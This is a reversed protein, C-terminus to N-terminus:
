RPPPRRSSAGPPEGAADKKRRPRFIVVMIVLILLLLLMLWVWPVGGGGGAGAKDKVNVISQGPLTFYGDYLITGNVVYTGAAPPTWYVTLNAHAGSPVTLADSELPALLRGDQRVEAKFKAAVVRVTGDNHFWADLRIPEGTFGFPEHNIGRFTGSPVISGPVVVKFALTVDLADIQTSRLKARYQGVELGPPFTVEVEGSEGPRLGKHGTAESLIPTDAEFPIITGTVIAEDFVNGENRAVVRAIVPEDAQADAVRAEGWTIHRIPEGGVTINFTAGASLRVQQGSGTVTGKPETTFTVITAHQGPGATPPVAVTVVVAKNTRAAIRFGSAPDTTLWSGFEGQAEVTITSASDLQNQVTVTRLYSQGVQADPLTITGPTVGFNEQQGSAPFAALAVATVFLCAAAITSRGSSM